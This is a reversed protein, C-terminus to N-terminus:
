VIQRFTTSVYRQRFDCVGTRVTVKNHPRIDIWSSLLSPDLVSMGDGEGSASSRSDGSRIYRLSLPAPQARQVSGQDRHDLPRSQPESSRGGRYDDREPLLRM